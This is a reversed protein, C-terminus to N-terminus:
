YNKFVVNQTYNSSEIFFSLRKSLLYVFISWADIICKNIIIIIKLLTTGIVCSTAKFIVRIWFNKRKNYSKLNIFILNSNEPEQFTWLKYVTTPKNHTHKKKTFRCWCVCVCVCMVWYHSWLIVAAREYVSCM